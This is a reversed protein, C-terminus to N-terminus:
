DADACIVERTMTFELTQEGRKVRVTAVTGPKGKIIELSEDLIDGLRIGSRAAPYGAIIRTVKGYGDSVMGVGGYAQDCESKVGGAPEKEVIRINLQYSPPPQEAATGSEDGKGESCSKLPPFLLFLHLVLSFQLPYRYRLM